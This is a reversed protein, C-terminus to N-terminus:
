KRYKLSNSIFNLLFSSFISFFQASAFFVYYYKRDRLISATRQIPQVYVIHRLIALRKKPFFYAVAAYGKGYKMFKLLNESITQPVRRFSEATSHSIGQRYGRRQFFISMVTDESWSYNKLNDDPSRFYYDLLSERTYLSPRGVMDCDTAPKITARFYQDWSDSLYNNKTLGVARVRSQLASYKGNNLNNYLNLAWGDSLADDADVFAIFRKEALSVGLMRQYYLGNGSCVEFRVQKYMRVIEETKDTSGGDIVIVESPNQTLISDLCRAINSEENLTCILFSIPLKNM